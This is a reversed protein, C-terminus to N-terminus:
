SKKKQIGAVVEIHNSDLFMFVFLVVIGIGTYSLLIWWGSRNTDHLRRITIAITPITTVLIFFSVGKGIIMRGLNESIYKFSLMGINGLVFIIICYIAFNILTAAWFDKRSTIGSFNFYNKWFKIYSEM